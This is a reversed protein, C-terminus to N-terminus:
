CCWLLCRSLVSHPPTARHFEHATGTATTTPIARGQTPGDKQGSGRAIPGLVQKRYFRLESSDTDQLVQITFFDTHHLIPITFFRHQSTDTNQLIPITFFRYPSFFNMTLFRHQPSATNRLVHIQLIQLKYMDTYLNEPPDIKCLSNM